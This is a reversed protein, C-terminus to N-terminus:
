KSQWGEDNIPIDAVAGIWRDDDLVHESRKLRKEVDEGSPGRGGLCGTIPVGSRELCPFQLAGYRHRFGLLAGSFVEVADGGGSSGSRIGPEHM